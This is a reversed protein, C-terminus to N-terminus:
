YHRAIHVSDLMKLIFPRDPHRYTHAHTALSTVTALLEHLQIWTHATLCRQIIMRCLAQYDADCGSQLAAFYITDDSIHNNQFRDPRDMDDLDHSRSLWDPLHLEAGPITHANIQICMRFCFLSLIKLLRDAVMSKAKHKVLWCLCTTNDGGFDVISDRLFYGFLFLGYCAAVYERVNIHHVLIGNDTVQFGASCSIITPLLEDPIHEADLLFQQLVQMSDIEDAHYWRIVFFLSSIGPIWEPSDTL